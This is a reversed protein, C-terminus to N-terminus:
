KTLFNMVQPYMERVARGSPCNEDVITQGANTLRVVDPDYPIHGVMPIGNHECFVDIQNTIEPNVTAKNVCVIVPIRFV